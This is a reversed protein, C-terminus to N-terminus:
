QGKQKMADMFGKFGKYVGADMGSSSIDHFEDHKRRTAEVVLSGCLDCTLIEVKQGSKLAIAYQRTYSQSM